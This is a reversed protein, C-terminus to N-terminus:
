GGVYGCSYGGSVVKAFGEGVVGLPIWLFISGVFVGAFVRGFVMWLIGQFLGWSDGGRFVWWNSRVPDLM